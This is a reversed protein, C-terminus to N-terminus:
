MLRLSWQCIKTTTLQATVDSKLAFRPVIMRSFGVRRTVYFGVPPPNWRNTSISFQGSASPPALYGNMGLRRHTCRLGDLTLWVPSKMVSFSIFCCSECGTTTSNPTKVRNVCHTRMGRLLYFERFCVTCKHVDSSSEDEPYVARSNETMPRKLPTPEAFTATAPRKDATHPPLPNRVVGCWCVLVTTSTCPFTFGWVCCQVSTCASVMCSSICWMCDCSEASDTTCREHVMM